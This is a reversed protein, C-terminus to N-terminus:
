VHDRPQTSPQSPRVSRLGGSQNIRVDYSEATTARLMLDPLRNVGPIDIIQAFRPNLGGLYQQRLRFEDRIIDPAYRMLNEFKSNYEVVSGSGQKLSTFRQRLAERSMIDMYRREFQNEFETWRAPEITEMWVVSSRKGGTVLTVM